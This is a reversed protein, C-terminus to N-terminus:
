GYNGCHGCCRHRIGPSFSKDYGQQSAHSAHLVMRCDAEEQCSPDIASGDMPASSWVHKGRTTVLVKGEPIALYELSGVLLDYLCAKNANVCLFAKWNPPVPTQPTIQVPNGGGRSQCMSSKLSQPLYIDWVFDFRDTLELEAVIRKGFVNQAFEQLTRVKVTSHKPDLKHVM